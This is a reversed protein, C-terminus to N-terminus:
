AVEQADIVYKKFGGTSVYASLDSAVAGEAKPVIEVINFMEPDQEKNSNEIILDINSIYDAGAITAERQTIASEIKEGLSESNGNRGAISYTIASAASVIGVLAVIGVVRKSIKNFM